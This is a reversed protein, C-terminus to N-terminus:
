SLRGSALLNWYVCHQNCFRQLRANKAKTGVSCISASKEEKMIYTFYHYENQM